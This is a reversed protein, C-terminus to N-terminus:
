LRRFPTSEPVISLTPALQTSTDEPRPAAEPIAGSHRFSKTAQVRIMM